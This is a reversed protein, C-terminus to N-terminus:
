YGRMKRGTETGPLKLDTIVVETDGDVCALGEEASSAGVVSYGKDQLYEVLSDRLSDDDEILVVSATHQGALAARGNMSAM